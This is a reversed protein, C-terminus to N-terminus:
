CELCRGFQALTEPDVEREFVLRLRKTDSYRQVLRELRDDFIIEGHKVIIVRDCLEQVDQMTHSTESQARPAPPRDKLVWLGSGEGRTTASSSGSGSRRSSM